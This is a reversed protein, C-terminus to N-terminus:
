FDDPDKQIIQQKEFCFYTPGGASWYHWHHSYTWHSLFLHATFLTPLCHQCYNFICYFDEEKHLLSIYLSVLLNVIMGVNKKPNTEVYFIFHGISFHYFLSPFANPSKSFLKFQHSIHLFSLFLLNNNCLDNAMGDALFSFQTHVYM